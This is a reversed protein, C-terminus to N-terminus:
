KSLFAAIKERFTRYYPKEYMMVHSAGKVIELDSGDPFKDLCTNVAEKNMYPDADGCIVLTPVCLKEPEILATDAAVCLDKRGGNPSHAGDYHWCSSCYLEIIEKEAIDFDFTGDSKKQFDDAAHEWDNAHFPETIDAYGLGTFIPAYLVLKRIYDPHQYAFRSAIVTGWSWGLIDATKKGTIKRIKEVAACVDLAAYDSNPMFGDKVEDSQGYGAIDIRWVTYGESALYRVPSYDGYDIDFEHSSYTLGHVLLINKEYMRDALCMRDLHLAVGNRELPVVAYDYSAAQGNSKATCGVPSLLLVATLVFSVFKKMM